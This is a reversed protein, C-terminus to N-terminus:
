QFNDNETLFSARRHRPMFKHQMIRICFLCVLRAGSLLLSWLNLKEHFSPNYAFFSFSQIFSMFFKDTKAYFSDLRSFYELVYFQVRSIFNIWPFTFYSIKMLAFSRSFIQRPSLIELKTYTEQTKRLTDKQSKKKKIAM